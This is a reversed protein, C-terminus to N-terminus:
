KETITELKGQLVQDKLSYCIAGSTQRPNKKRPCATVAGLGILTFFISIGVASYCAKLASNCDDRPVYVFVTNTLGVSSALVIVGWRQSHPHSVWAPRSELPGGHNSQM